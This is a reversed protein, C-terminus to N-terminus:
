FLFSSEALDAADVGQLTIVTTGITVTAGLDGDAIALADIGDLDLSSLDILDEGITFDTVTDRRADAGFVFVDAGAGGTLEDAGARGVLTDDGAGGLLTDAGGGGSLLDHGVGGSLLDRGTGGYLSDNGGNGFLLDDGASWLLRDNGAGGVLLDDADFGTLTDARNSGTVEVAYDSITDWIAAGDLLRIASYLAHVPNVTTDSGSGPAASIDFGEIVLGADVGTIAGAAGTGQTGTTEGEVWAGFTLSEVSGSIGHGFSMGHHIMDYAFGEGEVVVVADSATGDTSFRGLMQDGNMYYTGGFANDPTGGYFSMAGSTFGAFFDSFFTTLNVGSLGSADISLANTM